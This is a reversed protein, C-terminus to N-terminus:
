PREEAPVLPMGCKPCNGPAGSTVDAHMPCVYSSPAREAGARGHAHEHTAPQADPQSAAAAPPIALTDSAAPLPAEEAQPSAPHAGTLEFAAPASCGSDLSCLSCTLLVVLTRSM